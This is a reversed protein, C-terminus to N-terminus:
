ILHDQASNWTDANGPLAFSHPIFLMPSSETSGLIRLGPSDAETKAFSGYGGYGPPIKVTVTIVSPPLAMLSEIM